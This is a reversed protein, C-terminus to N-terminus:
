KKTNIKKKIIIFLSNLKKNIKRDKSFIKVMDSKYNMPYLAAM